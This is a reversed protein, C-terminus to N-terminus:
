SCCIKPIAIGSGPIKPPADTPVNLWARVSYLCPWLGLYSAVVELLKPDLAVKLLPDDAPVQGPYALLDVLFSKPGTSTSATGAVIAGVDQSGCVQRIRIAAESLAVQGDQTLFRKSGDVVIGQEKLEQALALTDSYSRRMTVARYTRVGNAVFRWLFYTLNRTPLARRSLPATFSTINM